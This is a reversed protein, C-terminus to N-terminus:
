ALVGECWYGVSGSMDTDGHCIKIRNRHVIQTKTTEILQIKYNASGVQDIVTYHGRWLSSLKKTHGTKIVPNFLWVGDGFKFDIGACQKDYAEKRKKQEM